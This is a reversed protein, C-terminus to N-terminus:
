RRRKAAIQRMQGGGDNLAHAGDADLGHRAVDHVHGEPDDGDDALWAPVVRQRPKHAGSQVGHANTM